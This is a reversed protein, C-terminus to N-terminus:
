GKLHCRPNLDDEDLQSLVSPPSLGIQQVSPSTLYWVVVKSPDAKIGEAPSSTTLVIVKHPLFLRFLYHWKFLGKHTLVTLLREGERFVAGIGSYLKKREMLKAVSQKKVM